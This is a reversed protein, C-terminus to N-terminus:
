TLKGSPIGIYYMYIYVSTPPKSCKKWLIHSLGEWSVKMNKLATTIGGVLIYVTEINPSTM